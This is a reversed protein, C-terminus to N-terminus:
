TSSDACWAGDVRRLTLTGNHANGNVSNMARYSVTARDAIVVPEGALTFEVTDPIKDLDEQKETEPECSLKRALALDKTNLVHMAQEAIRRVKAAAHAADPEASPRRFQTTQQADASPQARGAIEDGGLWIGLGLTAGLLLVSVGGIAIVVVRNAKSPHSM